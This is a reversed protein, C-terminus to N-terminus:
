GIAAEPQALDNEGLAVLQDARRLALHVVHAQAERPARGLVLLVTPVAAIGVVEALLVM